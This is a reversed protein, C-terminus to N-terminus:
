HKIDKSKFVYVITFLLIKIDMFLSINNLYKEEFFVKKLLNFSLFDRGNIQALGTIGPKIDFICRAERLEILTKETSVIPRPGVLSMEGKLVNFLQPLEDISTKRIFKGVRTVYKDAEIEISPVDHPTEIKMSRFKYFIFTTKNKGLRKSKYFIPGNNDIKILIGVFIMPILLIVLAALSILIDLIRKGIINYIKRGKNIMM